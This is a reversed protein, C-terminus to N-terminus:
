TYSTNGEVEWSNGGQLGARSRAQSPQSTFRTDRRFSRSSCRVITRHTLSLSSSCPVSSVLARNMITTGLPALRSNEFRSRRFPRTPALRPRLPPRHIVLTSLTAVLYFSSYVSCAQSKLENERVASSHQAISTTSDTISRALTSLKRFAPQCLLRRPVGRGTGREVEREM